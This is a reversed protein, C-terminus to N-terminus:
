KICHVASTLYKMMIIRHIRTATHRVLENRLAKFLWWFTNSTYLIYTYVSYIYFTPIHLAPHAHSVWKEDYIVYYSITHTSSGNLAKSESKTLSPAIHSHSLCIFSMTYIHPSFIRSFIAYLWRSISLIVNTQFFFVFSNFAWHEYINWKAQQIFRNPKKKLLDIIIASPFLFTSMKDSKMNDNYIHIYYM